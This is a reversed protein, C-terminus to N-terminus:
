SINTGANRLLAPLCLKYVNSVKKKVLHYKNQTFWAFPTLLHLCWCTHTGPPKNLRPRPNKGSNQVKWTKIEPKKIGSRLKDDTDPFAICCFAFYEAQIEPLKLANLHLVHVHMTNIATILIFLPLALLWSFYLYSLECTKYLLFLM